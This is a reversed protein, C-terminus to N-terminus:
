VTGLTCHRFHARLPSTTESDSCTWHIWRFVELCELHKQPGIRSIDVPKLFEGAMARWKKCVAGFRRLDCVSMCAAIALWVDQMSWIPHQVVGEHQHHPQRQFVSESQWHDGNEPLELPLPRFSDCEPQADSHTNHRLEMRTVSNRALPTAM